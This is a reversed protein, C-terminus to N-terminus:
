GASSGALLGLEARALETLVQLSVAGNKSHRMVVETVVPLLFHSEFESMLLEAVDPVSRPLRNM